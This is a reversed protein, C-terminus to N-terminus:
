HAPWTNMGCNTPCSEGGDFDDGRGKKSKYYCEYYDTHVDNVNKTTVIIFNDRNASTKGLYVRIGDADVKAAIAANLENYLNAIISKPYWESITNITITTKMFSQVYAHASDCSLHNTLELGCDDPPCQFDPNYLFSGKGPEYEGSDRAAKTHVFADDYVFYDKHEFGSVASPSTGGEQTATVIITNKGDKLGIYFRIGDADPNKNFLLNYVNDVWAKSLWFSLTKSTANYNENFEAAMSNAEKTDLGNLTYADAPMTDQVALSPKKSEAAKQKAPQSCAVALLSIGLGILIKKM